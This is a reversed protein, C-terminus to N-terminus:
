VALDVDQAYGATEDPVDAAVAGAAVIQV